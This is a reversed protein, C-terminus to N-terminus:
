AEITIETEMEPTNVITDCVPCNFNVFEVFKAIDEKSSDSKIYFKNVIKSFGIKANKDIGMFGDLNIDGEIEIRIDILKIKHAKAFARAVICKCAALAGLMAECPNMGTDTGGDDKPEDLIFKHVGAVVEVQLGEKLIATSKLITM